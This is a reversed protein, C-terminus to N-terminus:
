LSGASVSTHATPLTSLQGQHLRYFRDCQELTSMRHSVVVLTKKGHLENVVQMVCTETSTDLSSTAEDLVLVPPNHYLARAIGVRQLQGGSVRVGREGVKTALGHPLSGVFSDLQAMSVARAIAAHDIEAEPVGYAINRMLTDDTLFISQPVYGIQDQWSRLNINIDVGDVKVSGYNPELLGLIINVLTTKGSGSIGTIGISEGRSITMSITHLLPKAAGPYAFTVDVLRIENSLRPLYVTNCAPEGSERCLERHVVDIAPMGYRISQMALLVRNVSPILRFAVAAFLGVTPIVHGLEHGRTLALSVILVLGFVALVELWLAPMLQLAAHHRGARSSISNHYDFANQFYFERGLLKIEKIGGLGQQLHQLRLGEHRQRMKGWHGTRSHTFYNFGFSAGALVITVSLASIPDFIVLLVFIGLVGLLETMMQLGPMVVRGTIYNVETIINRILQASNQQLHFSYSQRLYSAFLRRSLCNQIRFSFRTQRWAQFALYSNKILYVAFLVALAWYILMKQSPVSGPKFLGSIAPICETYNGSTLLAILPLVLGISLTELIMGILMLVVLIGAHRRDKKSLLQWLKRSTQPILM